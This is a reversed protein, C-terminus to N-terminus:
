VAVDARHAAADLASFFRAIFAVTQPGHRKAMGNEASEALAPRLSRTLALLLAVAHRESFRWDREQPTKAPALHADIMAILWALRREFDGFHGIVAVQIDTIMQRTEADAMVESWNPEGTLPSLHAETVQEAIRHYADARDQGLMTTVACILGPVLRRSLLPHSLPMVPGPTSGFHPFLPRLPETVIREFPPLTRGEAENLLRRCEHFSLVTLPHTQLFDRAVGRMVQADVAEGREAARQAYYQIFDALLANPAKLPCHVGEVAEVHVPADPAHLMAAASM